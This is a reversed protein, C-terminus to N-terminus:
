SRGWDWYEAKEELERMDDWDDTPPPLISFQRPKDSMELRSSSSDWPLMIMDWCLQEVRSEVGREHFGM